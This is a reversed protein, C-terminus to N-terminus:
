PVPPDTSPSPPVLFCVTGYAAQFGNLRTETAPYQEAPVIAKLTEKAIDWLKNHEEKVLLVIRTSQSNFSSPCNLLAETIIEQIKADSITSEKKLQYYTRRNKVATLFESSGM